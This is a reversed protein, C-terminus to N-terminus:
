TENFAYIVCCFPNCLVLQTSVSWILWGTYGPHRCFGYIGDTILKHDPRKAMALRHTFGNGAQLMAAKRIVEGVLCFLVGIMSVNVNKLMPLAYYELSFEAWSLAAAGWYGYSHNLLFSDPQLSRRNSLATFVYESLHFVSLVVCYRSFLTSKHGHHYISYATAVGGVLGLVAAQM